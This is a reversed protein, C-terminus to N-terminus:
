SAVAIEQSSVELLLVWGEQFPCESNSQWHTNAMMHFSSMLCCEDPRLIVSM